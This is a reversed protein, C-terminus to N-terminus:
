LFCLFIVAFWIGGGWYCSVVTQSAGFTRQISIISGMSNSMFYSSGILLLYMPSLFNIQRWTYDIEIYYLTLLLLSPFSLTLPTIISIIAATTISIAIIVINPYYYHHFHYHQIFCYHHCCHHSFLHSCHQHQWFATISITCMIFVLMAIIFNM